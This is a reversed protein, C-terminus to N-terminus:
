SPTVESMTMTKRGFYFGSAGLPCFVPCSTCGTKAGYCTFPLTRGVLLWSPVSPLYLYLEIREKVEVSSSPPHDRGPWKVGPSFSRTPHAGPGIQILDQSRVSWSFRRDKGPIFRRNKPQGSRLVTVTIVSSDRCYRTIDPFTFLGVSM